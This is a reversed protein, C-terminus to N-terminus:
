QPWELSIEAGLVRPPASEGAYNSPAVGDFPIALPIAKANGLNRGWLTLRLRRWQAGVRLHFYSYRAQRAQNSEDYFYGGLLQYEPRVQFRWRGLRPKWQLGAALSVPSSLPVAKGSIDEDQSRSGPTFRAKLLSAATFLSLDKRPRAELELELGRNVAGGVNDIYFDGLNGYASPPAPLNFQLDKLRIDFLSLNVALRRQWWQGKLGLEIQRSFDERYVEKGEAPTVNFGGARYGLSWSAYTLLNPAANWALVARPSVDEFRDKAATNRIDFDYLTNGFQDVYFFKRSLNGAKHEIDQRLGLTLDLSRWHLTGQTYIGYGRDRLQVLNQYRAGGLQERVTGPLTDLGLGNPLTAGVTELVFAPKIFNIADQFNSQTFYFLGLQWDLTMAKGLTLPADSPSSLNLEQTFQRGRRQNDRTLRDRASLDLDTQEHASYPVHGTISRLLWGKAAYGLNLINIEVDRSTFGTFDHSVRLPVAQLEALDYLAFDGDRARERSHILRARWGDEPAHVLQARGFRASRSDLRERTIDNLSYGDRGSMGGAISAFVAEGLPISFSGTLTREGDDGGNGALSASPKGSPLRSLVNVIGGPANRGYLTGVPGRLYELQQLDYFELSTLDGNLLPVGDVVTTVAPNTPSGGIGRAKPNSIARATFEIVNLNPVFRAAEKVSRAGSDALMTETITTVAVPTKEAQTPRKEATIVVVPLLEADPLAPQARAAGPLWLLVALAM